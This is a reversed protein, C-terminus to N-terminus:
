QNCCWVVTIPPLNNLVHVTIKRPLENMENYFYFIYARIERVAKFTKIQQTLKCKLRVELRSIEARLVIEGLFRCAGEPVQEREYERDESTLPNLLERYTTVTRFKM